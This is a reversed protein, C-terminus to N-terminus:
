KNNKYEQIPRQYWKSINLDVALVSQSSVSKWNLYLYYKANYKFHRQPFRLICEFKTHIPRARLTYMYASILHGRVKNVSHSITYGLLRRVYMPLGVSTRFYLTRRHKFSKPRINDAAPFAENSNGKYFMKSITYSHCFIFLPYGKCTRPAYLYGYM